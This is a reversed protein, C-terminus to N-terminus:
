LRRKRGETMVCVGQRAESHLFLMRTIPFEVSVPKFESVVPRVPDQPLVANTILLIRVLVGLVFEGTGGHLGISM